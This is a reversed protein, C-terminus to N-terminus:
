AGNGRSKRQQAFRFYRQPLEDFEMAARCDPCCPEPVQVSTCDTAIEVKSERECQPCVFTGIVSDVAALRPLIPLMNLLRVVAPSCRVCRHPGRDAISQFLRFWKNAGLSNIREVEELVFCVPGTIAAEIEAVNASEDIFGAVEVRPLQGSAAPHLKWRFPSSFPKPKM